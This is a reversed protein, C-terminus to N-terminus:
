ETEDNTVDDAPISGNAPAPEISASTEETETGFESEQVSESPDAQNESTDPKSTESSEPSSEMATTDTPDTDETPKTSNTEEAKDTHTETIVYDAPPIRLIMGAQILDANELQNYAVLAEVTTHFKKAIASLTDGPQVQYVTNPTEEVIGPGDDGGSPKVVDGGGGSGPIEISWTPSLKIEKSYKGITTGVSSVLVTMLLLLSLPIVFIIKKGHIKRNKKM